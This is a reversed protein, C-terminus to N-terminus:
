LNEGNVKTSKRIDNKGQLTDLLSDYSKNSMDRGSRIVRPELKNDCHVCRLLIFEATSDVTPVKQGLIVYHNAQYQSVKIEEFWTSGCQPCYVCESEIKKQQSLQTGIM